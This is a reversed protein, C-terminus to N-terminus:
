KKKIVEVKYKELDIKYNTGDEFYIRSYGTKLPVIKTVGKQNDRIVREDRKRIIQIEIKKVEQSSLSPM